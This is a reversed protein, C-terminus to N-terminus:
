RHIVLKETKVGNETYIKVLYIGDKLDSVDIENEPNRIEKCKIGNISYIELKEIEFFNSFNIKTYAPNPSIILKTELVINDIINQESLKVVWYDYGGKNETIDGDSSNSTGAIVYGNDTTQIISNSVDGASGGISKEWQINGCSDIKVIWYDSYGFNEAVDMDYSESDGCIVYGNDYTHQISKSFDELSGGYNEEWIMEGITDLKVVWFDKTGNNGTVDGDISVTTGSVIYCGDIAQQVSYPHEGLSGGLSKQWQIDGASNIKVIWYDFSNHNGSVDGDISESTGAIIYGEDTTQQISRAYDWSSGGLSEQWEIEGLSNLKVVWYDSDGLSAIVDGDSSESSGAIIYGSDNTQYVSEAYDSASGGLSKQWQINGISDIKVIWYDFDGHNGTVDGDISNSIGAFIFGDDNTQKISHAADTSNGGFSKCWQIEGFQDLKVIWCDYGGHNDSIDGDVSHSVGAIIYGNDNTQEISYAHDSLSGGLSVQWEITPTQGNCIIIILSIVCTCLIQKM